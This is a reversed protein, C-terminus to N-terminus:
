RRGFRRFVFVLCAAIGVIIGIGARGWITPTRVKVRLTISDAAFDGISRLIVNYDADMTRSPPTIVVEIDQSEGPELSEIQSPTFKTEWGSSVVRLFKIDQIVGTGSNTVRLPITNGEGARVATDLRGTTTMLGLKYTAPIRTVVATLDISDKVNGSSAELNLIYNGPEPLTDPLPSFIVKVKNRYSITPEIRIALISGSTDGYPKVIETQWGPPEKIVIDFVRAEETDNKYDFTVTFEFSNGSEGHVVPYKSALDLSAEPSPEEEQSSLLLLSGESGIQAAFVVQTGFLGGLMGSLIILYLLPHVGRSKKM